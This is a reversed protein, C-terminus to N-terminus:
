QVIEASGEVEEHKQSITNAVYRVLRSTIVMCWEKTM